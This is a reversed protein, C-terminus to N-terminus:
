TVNVGVTAPLRLPVRVTFEELVAVGVSVEVSVPCPEGVSVVVAVTAGFVCSKPVTLTPVVEDAFVKVKVLVPVELMVPIDALAVPSKAAVEVQPQNRFGPAVQLTETVKWGVALPLRVPVNFTSEPLTTSGDIVVMAVRVPLPYATLVPAVSVGAEEANPETRIPTAEDALLKVYVLMPLTAMPLMLTLVVPLPYKSLLLQGKDRGPPLEQVILTTKVGTTAPATLPVSFTRELLTVLGVSVDVSLPIPTALVVVTVRVGAVCSKPLTLTPFAEASKLKLKVFVPFVLMLLTFM